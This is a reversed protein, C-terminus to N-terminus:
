APLASAAGQQLLGILYPAFSRWFEIHFTNEDQRWLTIEAKAFLTRTTMGVPFKKLSLDLMCGTSLLSEVGQGTLLLAQNRHSVDVLSYAHGSLAKKITTDIVTMNSPLDLVLWEYPGQWLIHRDKHSTARLPDPITVGLAQAARNLENSQAQLVFRALHPAFYLKVKGLSLNTLVNGTKDDRMLPEPSIMNGMLGHEKKTM